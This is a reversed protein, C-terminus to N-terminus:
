SAFSRRSLRFDHQQMNEFFSAEVHYYDQERALPPSILVNDPTGATGIYIIAQTNKFIFSGVPSQRPTFQAPRMSNISGGYTQLTLVSVHRFQPISRVHQEALFGLEAM